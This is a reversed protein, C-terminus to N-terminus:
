FGPLQMFSSQGPPTYAFSSSALVNLLVNITRRSRRVLAGYSRSARAVKSAALGLGEESERNPLRAIVSAAQECLRGVHAAHEDMGALDLRCAAAQAENLEWELLGLLNEFDEASGTNSACETSEMKNEM